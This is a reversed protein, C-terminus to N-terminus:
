GAPLLFVRPPEIYSNDDLLENLKLDSCSVSLSFVEVKHEEGRSTGEKREMKGKKQETKEINKLEEMYCVNTGTGILCLCM